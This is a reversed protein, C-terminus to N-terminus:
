YKASYVTGKINVDKIDQNALFSFCLGGLADVAARGDPDILKIPINLTYNYPSYGPFQDALPDVV